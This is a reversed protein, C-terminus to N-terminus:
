QSQSQLGHNEPLRNKELRDLIKDTEKLENLADIRQQYGDKRENMEAQILIDVYDAVTSARLRMAIENLRQKCERAQETMVVVDKETKSIEEELESIRKKAKDHGDKAEKYKLKLSSIIRKEKQKKHEYRFKELRHMEWGCKSPCITCCALCSDHSNMVICNYAEAENELECPYNCTSFCNRCNLAKKGSPLEKREFKTTTVEYEFKENNEMESKHDELLKKESDLQDIKERGAFIKRQVELLILALQHKDTLVRKCQEIGVPEISGFKEFFKDFNKKGLDWFSKTLDGSEPNVFLVSNNFKFDSAYPIKAEKVASMVPPYQGDAFTIMLFMNSSVHKALVGLISDFIYAQTHTLRAASSQIVVGVGNMHDIGHQGGISFFERIQDQTKKEQSMGRTDGFGPTDIITLTYPLRSGDMPYFTYATVKDTQSHAQNADRKHELKFRCDDELQVGLVYNVIGDLLTTKGAGTAGLLMLVKETQDSSPEGIVYRRGGVYKMPLMYIEPSVNHDSIRKSQEKIRKSLIKDTKIRNSLKSEHGKGLKSEPRVKFRYETEAELGEVITACANGEIVHEKWAGQNSKYLITYRIVIDAGYEPKGWKLSISNQTVCTSAPNKTPKGPVKPKTEISGTMDSEEGHRSGNEPRVKFCYCTRPELGGVKAKRESTTLKNQWEHQPDTVSRCLVTYSTVRRGGKEPQEWELSVTNHTCESVHLHIPKSIRTCRLYVLRIIAIVVCAIIILAWDEM